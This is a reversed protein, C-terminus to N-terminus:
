HNSEKLLGFNGFQLKVDYSELDKQKESEDKQFVTVKNNKCFDSNLILNFNVEGYEDVQYHKGSIDLMNPVNPKHASACTLDSKTGNVMKWHCVGQESKKYIVNSSWLVHQDFKKQFWAKSYHNAEVQSVLIM